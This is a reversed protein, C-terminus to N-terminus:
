TIRGQKVFIDFSQLSFSKSIESEFGVQLLRGSNGAHTLMRAIAEGTSYVGINYESVGYEAYESKPLSTSDIGLMSGYDFGWKVTFPLESGGIITSKIDKLIKIITQDGFDYYASHYVFRYTQDHDLYTSYKGIYGVLGFLVERAETVCMATPKIGNWTTVRNSNDELAGRLDFCYTTEASNFTLLYFADDTSYASKITNPVESVAQQILQDRVNKSIDRFPLSKEQITRQMSRVGTDSLFIIDTGTNQVSDRAICGIGKLVDALSLDTVSDANQYIVTNKKCFIILFNNHAALAVIPDNNPVVTAINISGSSGGDLKGGDLLDSFYVTQRDNAIDAYWVRGYAALVCNPKFTDVTHDLPLTGIDAIRQFGYSGKHSHPTEDTTTLVDAVTYGSGDDFISVATVVGSSEATVQFKAGTGTGGSAVLIDGVSYGSGGASVTVATIAGVGDVTSVTIECGTGGVPLKHYILPQHGEQVFYAHQSGSLGTDFPLAAAQWYDDTISYSLDSTNTANRVVATTLSSRGTFLKNNGGSFVVNGDEKVLEFLFSISNSGLDASASNLRAYGKRAAVRGYKDIVCNSAQLAFSPNLGSPSDQTNLGFFGPAAISVKSLAEAM